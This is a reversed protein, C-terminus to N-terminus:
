WFVLFSAGSLWYGTQCPSVQPQYVLAFKDDGGERMYFERTPGRAWRMEPVDGHGGCGDGRRDGRRNLVVGFEVSGGAGEAVWRGVFVVPLSVAQGVVLDLGEM